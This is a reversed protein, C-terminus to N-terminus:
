LGRGPQSENGLLEGIEKCVINEKAQEQKMVKIPLQAVLVDQIAHAFHAERRARSDFRLRQATVAHISIRDACVAYTFWLCAALPPSAQPM